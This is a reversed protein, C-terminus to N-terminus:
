LAPLLSLAPADFTATKHYIVLIYGLWELYEELAINRCLIMQLLLNMFVGYRAHESLYSLCSITSYVFTLVVRLLHCEVLRLQHSKKAFRFLECRNWM